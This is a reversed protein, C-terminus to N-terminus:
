ATTGCLVPGAAGPVLGAAEGARHRALAPLHPLARAPQAGARRGVGGRRDAPQALARLHRRLHDAPRARRRLLERTRAWRRHAGPPLRRGARQGRKGSVDYGTILARLDSSCARRGAGPTTPMPISRRGRVRGLSRGVRQPAVDGQDIGCCARVPTSRPTSSRSSRASGAPTRPAHRRDGDEHERPGVVTAGAEVEDGPQVPMSSWSPRRRPGSSRRGRRPQGPPQRRGGRRPLQRHRRRHSVQHRRGGVVLRSQFENLRDLDVRDGGPRRGGGPVPPPRAPSVDLTYAQGQYALEVSRGIVHSARPRGGRASALFSARELAEEADYVDIAVGLLAIEAHRTPQEALEQGVRDLWRHGGRRLGGRAPLARRAPVVQHHHRGRHRRHDGAPRVRLRAM